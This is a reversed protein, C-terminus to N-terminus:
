PEWEKERYEPYKEAHKAWLRNAIRVFDAQNQAVKDTIEIATIRNLHALEGELPRIGFTDRVADEFSAQKASTRRLRGGVIVIWHYAM